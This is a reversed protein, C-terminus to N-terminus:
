SHGALWARWGELLEEEEVGLAGLIGEQSTAELLSLLVDRGWTADVYEVLTGSVGYRYPGSWAEDLRAPTEDAAFAEIARGRQGRDLQGSVYTALGEVFWGIEDAGEFENSPNHQMHYVHVLEHAVLDTLEDPDDPDHDCAETDWVRPSLLVLMRTAGAGVMWCETAFGWSDTTYADFSARDPFVRVIVPHLFPRDFFREIRAGGAAADAAVTRAVISDVPANEIRFEATDAPAAISLEAQGRPTGDPLMAASELRDGAASAYLFTLVLLRFRFGM